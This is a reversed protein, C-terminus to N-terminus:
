IDSEEPVDHHLYKVSSSTSLKKFFILLRKFVTPIKELSLSIRWSDFCEMLDCM